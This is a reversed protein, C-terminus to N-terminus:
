NNKSVDMSKRPVHPLKQCKESKKKTAEGKPTERKEKSDKVGALMGRMHELTTTVDERHWHPPDLPSCSIGQPDPHHHHNGQLFAPIDM